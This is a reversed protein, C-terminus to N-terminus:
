TRGESQQRRARALRQAMEDVVVAIDGARFSLSGMTEHALASGPDDRLVTAALQRAEGPLQACITEWSAKTAFTIPIASAAPTTEFVSHM